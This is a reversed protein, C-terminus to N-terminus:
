VAYALEVALNAEAEASEIATGQHQLNMVTSQQSSPMTAVCDGKSLSGCLLLGELRSPSEVRRILLRTAQNSERTM